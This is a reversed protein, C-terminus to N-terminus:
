AKPSDGPGEPSDDGSDTSDETGASDATGESGSDQSDATDGNESGEYGGALLKALAADMEDDSATLLGRRQEFGEPDDLDENTPLLEASEWLGDREEVGRKNEMHEWFATAERMRRPRLELGVLSGFTREAPGGEARRRSMMETLAAASPINATSAVTVRTVWGEILALITELRALTAEQDPTMQPSFVGSALADQIGSPDMPDLDQAITEIRDMDIHIGAAFKTILGLVHDRLWPAGHFLRGHAAERIGLYLMVDSAPLDLGESFEAINSPVLASRDKSLPLGVDTSSVVECSLAGVAQGLQMGFLMSGAGSLMGSLDAGGMAQSLEPPLQKTMAETMAKSVSAAVPTTMEKWTEATAEIWEARSWATPLTTPEAFATQPTLWLEALKMADDVAGKQKGTVSPDGKQSAVQRAHNRALEWNVPEDTGGTSMMSQIQQFMMSMAQPNMPMGGPMNEGSMGQSGLLREFMEQFPDKPNDGNEDHPPNSSM